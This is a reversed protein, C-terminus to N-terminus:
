FCYIKKSRSNFGENSIVTTININSCQNFHGVSSKETINLKFHSMEANQYYEDYDSIKILTSKFKNCEKIICKLFTNKRIDVITVSTLM